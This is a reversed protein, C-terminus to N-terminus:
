EHFLDSITFVREIGKLVKSDSSINLKLSISTSLVQAFRSAVPARRTSSSRLGILFSLDAIPPM